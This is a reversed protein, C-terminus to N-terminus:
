MLLATAHDATNDMNLSPTPQVPQSQHTMGYPQGNNIDIVPQQITPTEFMTDGLISEARGMVDSVPPTNAVTQQTQQPQQTLLSENVGKISVVDNFVYNLVESIVKDNLGVSDLKTKVREEIATVSVDRKVKKVKRVVRKKTKPKVPAVPEEIVDESEEIINEKYTTDVDNLYDMFSSM